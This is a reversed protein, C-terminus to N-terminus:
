LVVRMCVIMQLIMAEPDQHVGLYATAATM